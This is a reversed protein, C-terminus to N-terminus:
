KTNPLITAPMYWECPKYIGRSLFDIGLNILPGPPLILDFIFAAWRIHRQPAGTEKLLAAKSTQCHDIRGGLITACGTSFLLSAALSITLLQKM